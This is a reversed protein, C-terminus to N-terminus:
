ALQRGCGTEEPWYHQHLERQGSRYLPASGSGTFTIPTCQSTRSWVGDHQFPLLGNRLYPCRIRQVGTFFHLLAVRSLSGRPVRRAFSLFLSPSLSVVHLIHADCLESEVDVQADKLTDVVSDNCAENRMTCSDWTNAAAPRGFGFM